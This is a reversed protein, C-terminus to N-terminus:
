ATVRGNRCASNIEVVHDYFGEIEEHGIVFTTGGIKKLTELCLERLDQQLAGFCEDLLVLPAPVLTAVTLSLALSIRDLEGGSLAGIEEYVLGRYYLRLNVEPKLHGNKLKRFLEIHLQLPDTFFESLIQNLTINFAELNEELTQAQLDQAKSKIETLLLLDAEVLKIEKELASRKEVTRAVELTERLLPLETKLRQLEQSATPYFKLLALRHELQELPETVPIERLKLYRAELEEVSRSKPLAAIRQELLWNQYYLQADSWTMQPSPHIEVSELLALRQHLVTKLSTFKKEIPPADRALSKLPELEILLQQLREFQGHELKLRNYREIDPVERSLGKFAVLAKEIEYYRTYKAQEINLRKLEEIDPINRPVDKYQELKKGIECYYKYKDQGEKLKNYERRNPEVRLIDKFLELDKVIKVYREYTHQRIKLDKLKLELSDRESAEAPLIEKAVLLNDTWGLTGQCRPCILNTLRDEIYKIEDSNDKNEFEGILKLEAELVDRQKRADQQSDYILIQSEINKLEEEKNQVGSLLRLQNELKDREDRDKKHHNYIILQETIDKIAQSYDQISGIRGLTKLENELKDREDRAQRERKYLEIPEELSKIEAERNEVLGIASIEKELQARRDRNKKEAQYRIFLEEEKELVTLETRTIQKAEIVKEENYPIKLRRCTEVHRQYLSDARGLDDLDGQTRPGDILSCPRKTRELAARQRAVELEKTVLLLEVPDGKMKAREIEKLLWRREETAKVDIQSEKEREATEKEVQQLEASIEDSSKDCSVQQDVQQYQRQLVKLNLSVETKETDIRNLYIEPDQSQFSLLQLFSLREKQNGNLLPHRQDQELFLGLAESNFYEILWAQAEDELYRVGDTVVVLDAPRTSRTIELNDQQYSVITRKNEYGLGSVGRGRKYILWLLAAFITSKGEGSDGRILVLKHLPLEFITDAYCRFNVLKLRFM